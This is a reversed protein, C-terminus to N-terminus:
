FRFKIRADLMIHNVVFGLIKLSGQTSVDRTMKFELVDYPCFM